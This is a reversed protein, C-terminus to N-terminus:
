IGKRWSALGATFWANANQGNSIMFLSQHKQLLKLTKILFSILM